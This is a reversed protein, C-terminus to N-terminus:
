IISLITGETWDKFQLNEVECEIPQSDQKLAKFDTTSEYIIITGDSKGIVQEKPILFASFKSERTIDFLIAKRVFDSQSIPSISEIRFNGM